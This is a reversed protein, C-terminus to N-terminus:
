SIAYFCGMQAANVFMKHTLSSFIKVVVVDVLFADALKLIPVTNTTTICQFASATALVYANGTMVTTAYKRADLIFLEEGRM